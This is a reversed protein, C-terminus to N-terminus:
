SDSIQLFDIVAVAAVTVGSRVPSSRLLLSHPCYRTISFCTSSGTLTPGQLKISMLCSSATTYHFDHM